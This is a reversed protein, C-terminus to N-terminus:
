QNDILKGINPLYMLSWLVISSIELLSPFWVKSIHNLSVPVMRGDNHPADTVLNRIHRIILRQTDLALQDLTYLVEISGAKNGLYDRRMHNSSAAFMGLQLHLVQINTAIVIHRIPNFGVM